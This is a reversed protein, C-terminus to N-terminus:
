HRRWIWAAPGRGGLRGGFGARNLGLVLNVVLKLPAGSGVPGVHFRRESWTSVVTEARVVDTVSGGLM